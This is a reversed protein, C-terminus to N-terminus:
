LLRKVLKRKIVQEQAPDQLRRERRQEKQNHLKFKDEQIETTNIKQDQHLVVEKDQSSTHISIDQLTNTMAGLQATIENTVDVM